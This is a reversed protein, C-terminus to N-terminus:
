PEATEAPSSQTALDKADSSCGFPLDTKPLDPSGCRWNVIRLERKRRAIEPALVLRVGALLPDSPTVTLVGNSADIDLKAITEPLEGNWRDPFRQNAAWDRGIARAIEKAAAATARAADRRPNPTATLAAYTLLAALLVIAGGLALGVWRALRQFRASGTDHRLRYRIAETSARASVVHCRTLLNHLSHQGFLLREALLVPLSLLPHLLYKALTRLVSRLLGPADGADNVVRIRLLRKGLSGKGYSDLLAPLLITALIGIALLAFLAAGDIGAIPALYLGGALWLPIALALLILDILTATARTGTDAFVEGSAHSVPRASPADATLPQKCQHCFRFSAPNTWGCHGCRM